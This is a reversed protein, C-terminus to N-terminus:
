PIDTPASQIPLPRPLNEAVNTQVYGLFCHLVEPIIRLKHPSSESLAGVYSLCPFGSSHLAFICFNYASIYFISNKKKWKQIITVNLDLVLICVLATQLRRQHSCVSV